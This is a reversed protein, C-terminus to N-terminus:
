VRRRCSWAAHADRQCGRTGRPPHIVHVAGHQLVEVRPVAALAGFLAATKFAVQTGRLYPRASMARWMMLHRRFPRPKLNSHVLCLLAEMEERKEGIEERYEM